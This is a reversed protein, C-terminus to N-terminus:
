QSQQGDTANSSHFGHERGSVVSRTVISKDEVTLMMLGVVADGDDNLRIRRMMRIMM